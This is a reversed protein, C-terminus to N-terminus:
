EIFQSLNEGIATCFSNGTEIQGSHLDYRHWLNQRYDYVFGEPVDYTAMLEKLKQMDKKVGQTHTIEIIVLTLDTQTDVLMVDPVPSTQSEGIMTERYPFLRTRGSKFLGTLGYILQTIIAQHQRSHSVHTLTLYDNM